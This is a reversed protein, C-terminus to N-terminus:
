TPEMIEMVAVGALAMVHQPKLEPLELFDMGQALEAGQGLLMLILGEPGAKIYRRVDLMDVAVVVLVALFPDEAVMLM